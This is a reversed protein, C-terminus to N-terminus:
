SEAEIREVLLDLWVLSEGASISWRSAFQRDAEGRLAAAVCDRESPSLLMLRCWRGTGDCADCGGCTGDAGITVPMLRDADAQIQDAYADLLNTYAMRRSILRQQARTEQRGAETIEAKTIRGTM